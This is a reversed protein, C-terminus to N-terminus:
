REYKGDRKNAERTTAALSLKLRLEPSAKKGLHSSGDYTSLKGYREIMTAKANERAAPTHTHVVNKPGNKAGNLACVASRLEASVHSFDSHGGVTLNMVEPRALFEENVYQREMEVLEEYSSAFALITRKHAAKGHKRISRTIQV